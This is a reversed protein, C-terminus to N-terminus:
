KKKEKQKWGQLISYIEMDTYKELITNKVAERIDRVSTKGPIWCETYATELELKTYKKSRKPLFLDPLIQEQERENDDKKEKKM